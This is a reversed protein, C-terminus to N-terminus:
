VCAREKPLEHERAWRDHAWLWQEPNERIVAEYLACIQRAWDDADKARLPPYIRLLHRDSQGRILFMPLIIAGLKEAFFFPSGPISVPHNFLRAFADLNEGHQDCILGLLENRQLAKFVPRLSRLGHNAYTQVGGAGRFEIFLQEFASKSPPQVLVSLPYGKTALAAGMLEWNGFHASAVIVGHGKQLAEELHELGEFRVIQDIEKELIPLRMVEAIGKVLNVISMHAIRHIERKSLESGYARRLNGFIFGRYPTLRYLGYVSSAFASAIGLAARRPLGQSFRAIAKMTRYLVRNAFNM